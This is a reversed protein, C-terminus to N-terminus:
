DRITWAARDIANSLITDAIDHLAYSLRHVILQHVVQSYRPLSSHTRTAPLTLMVCLRCHLGNNWAFWLFNVVQHEGAAEDFIEHPIVFFEHTRTASTKPSM